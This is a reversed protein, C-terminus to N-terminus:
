GIWLTDDIIPYQGFALMNRNMMNLEIPLSIECLGQIFHLM